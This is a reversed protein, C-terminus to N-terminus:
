DRFRRSRALRADHMRREQQKQLSFAARRQKFYESPRKRAGSFSLILAFIAFWVEYLAERKGKGCVQFFFPRGSM